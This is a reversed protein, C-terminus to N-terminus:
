NDKLRMLINEVCAVVLNNAPFFSQYPQASYSFQTLDNVTLDAQIAMTIIDVKDIVPVESVVQGGIIKLTEKDAILKMKVQKANPMMPFATTLEAHGTIIDFYDKAVAESIGTGGIFYKGVKTAAGNYFGKYTREEGLLNKALMRAMPVANTALKGLMPEGTIGSVFQTCDGIAYVDEINTEMKNNIIIGQNGIELSTNKFLDTNVRMGVSFIVIGSAGLSIKTGNKLIVSEVIETGNASCVSSTLHLHVGLRTLEEQVEESFDVDVLNPLISEAMDVLHTEVNVLNLAQALEVGIAGAGVVVAKKIKDEKIAKDIKEMDEQTKFVHVNKLNVGKITPLVPDAGTAIILKDYKYKDKNELVVVKEDFLIKVAKGRILDAGADTVLSDKKFVKETPLLGEIAYPMACYIMSHDEPRIIGMKKKKGLIKALTIGAPGGGLVFIEYNEM